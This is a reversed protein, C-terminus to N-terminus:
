QALVASIPEDFTGLVLVGGGGIQPAGFKHLLHVRGLFQGMSYNQPTLSIFLPMRDSGPSGLGGEQSM